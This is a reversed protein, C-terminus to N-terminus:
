VNQLTREDAAEGANKRDEYITIIYKIVAEWFIAELGNYRAAVAHCYKATILASEAANKYMERSQEKMTAKLDGRSCFEFHQNFMLRWAIKQPHENIATELNLTTEM